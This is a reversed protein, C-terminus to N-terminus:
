FITGNPTGVGDDFLFLENEEGHTVKQDDTLILEEITTASPALGIAERKYDALFKQLTTQDDVKRVQKPSLHLHADVM